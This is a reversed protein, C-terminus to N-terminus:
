FCFNMVRIAARTSTEISQLSTCHSAFLHTILRRIYMADKNYLVRDRHDQTIYLTFLIAVTFNSVLLLMCSPHSLEQPVTRIEQVDTYASSIPFSKFRRGSYLMNVRGIPKPFIQMVVITRWLLICM